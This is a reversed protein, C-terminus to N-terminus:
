ALNLLIALALGLGHGLAALASSEVILQRLIRARSAGLAARLGIERARSAGKALLLNALNACTILLLLLAGAQLTLLIPRTKGVLEDQLPVLSASWGTNTAPYAAALRRSIVDMETAADRQHTNASLRGIVTLWRGERNSRNQASLSLPVWADVEPSPFAFGAPLVGIVTAPSGNLTVQRGVIQQSGGM